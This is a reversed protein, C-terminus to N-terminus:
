NFSRLPSGGLGAFLLQLNSLRAELWFAVDLWNMIAFDSQYEELLNEIRGRRFKDKTAVWATTLVLPMSSSGLPRYQLADTALATTDEVFVVSEPLLVTHDYSTARLLSNLVNAFALVMSYIAQFRSHLTKTHAARGLHDLTYRMNSLDIKMQQYTSQIAPLHREPHRLYEPIQAMVSFKLSQIGMANDRAETLKELRATWQIKPNRLSEMILPVCLTVLLETEFSGTWEQAAAANLLYILVEGHDPNEGRQAMWTQCIMMLYFACITNASSAERPDNLSVRLARLGRGYSEFAEVSTGRSYISSYSTAVARVAADLAASTGLRRPIGKLFEGYVGLDYRADKVELVSIFAGAVAATQSTPMRALTGEEGASGQSECAKRNTATPGTVASRSSHDQIFKYRQVGSGVCPIKLRRCRACSPQTQDCKKKQKRCADCGRGSPVGPM